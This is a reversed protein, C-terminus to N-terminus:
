KYKGDMEIQLRSGDVKVVRVENRNTIAVVRRVEQLRRGSSSRRRASYCLCSVASPRLNRTSSALETNKLQWPLLMKASGPAFVCRTLLQILLRRSLPSPTINQPSQITPTSFRLWFDIVLALGSWLVVIRLADRPQYGKQNKIHFSKERRAFQLIWQALLSSECAYLDNFTCCCRGPRSTVTLSGGNGICPLAQM